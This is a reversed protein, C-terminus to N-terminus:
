RRRRLSRKTSGYIAPHDHAKGLPFALVVLVQPESRVIGGPTTLLARVTYKGARPLDTSAHLRRAVLQTSTAVGVISAALTVVEGGPRAVEWSVASVTTLDPAVVPLGSLADTEGFRSSVVLDSAVPASAGVYLTM